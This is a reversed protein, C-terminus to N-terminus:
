RTEASEENTCYDLILRELDMLTFPKSLFGSMGVDRARELAESTVDASVALIRVRRHESSRSEHSRGRSKRRRDHEMEKIKETAQYGDMTPMWLDMLIVDVPKERRARRDISMQRVAEEGNEAEYIHSYGLKTLMNVLLQRNIQNDEAVLFTLPHRKALNRDYTSPKRASPPRGSLSPTQTVSNRRSPTSHALPTAHRSSPAPLKATGSTKGRSVNEKPTCSARKPTISSRDLARKSPTIAKSPTSARSGRDTTSVPIRIEFDSGRRPGATDSRACILDGGITRALGKAVLLGLGLGEKKRTLSDDERSFPKFLYPLFAPPIGPGTDIIHIVITKSKASLSAKM